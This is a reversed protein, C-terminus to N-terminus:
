PPRTPHSLTGSKDATAKAFASPRTLAPEHSPDRRARAHMLVKFRGNPAGLVAEARISPIVSIEERFAEEARRPAGSIAAGFAIDHNFSGSVEVKRECAACLEEGTPAAPAHACSLWVIGGLAAGFSFRM